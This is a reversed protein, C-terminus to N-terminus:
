WWCMPFPHQNRSPWEPTVVTATVASVFGGGLTAIERRRNEESM